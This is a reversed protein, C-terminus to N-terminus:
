ISASQVDLPIDMWVPGRPHENAIRWLDELKWGGKVQNVIPSAKTIPRVINTIAVEQPGKQREDWGKPYTSGYRVIGKKNSEMMMHTPVQGSIIFMPVEDIWGAAVGTIANTGGPGTTVCVVSSLTNTYINHGVSAIACSQEHLMAVPTIRDQRALADILFMSGGGALFYCHTVGQDALFQWIYESVNM